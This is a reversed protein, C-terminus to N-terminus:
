PKLFVYFFLYIFTFLHFLSGYLLSSDEFSLQKIVAVSLFYFSASLQFQASIWAPNECLNVTLPSFAGTCKGAIAKWGSYGRWIRPSVHTEVSHTYNGEKERRNQELLITDIHVRSHYKCQFSHWIGAECSIKSYCQRRSCYTCPLFFILVCTIFLCISRPKRNEM